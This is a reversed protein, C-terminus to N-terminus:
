IIKLKPIKEPNQKATKTDEAISLNQWDKLTKNLPEVSRSYDKLIIVVKERKGFTHKRCNKRNVNHHNEERIWALKFISDELM